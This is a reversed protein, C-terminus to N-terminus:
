KKAGKRAQLWSRYFINNKLFIAFLTENPWPYSVEQDYLKGGEIRAKWKLIPIRGQKYAHNWEASQATGLLILGIEYRGIKDPGTKGEMYLDYTQGSFIMDNVATGDPEYEAFATMKNYRYTALNLGPFITTVFKPAARGKVLGDITITKATGFPRLPRSPDLLQAAFDRLPFQVKEDRNFYGYVTNGPFYVALQPQMSKTAIVDRVETEKRVVPAADGLHVDIRGRYAGGNLGLAYRVKVHGRDVAVAAELCRVDYSEKVASDFTRLRNISVRGSLAAPGLWRRAWRLSRDVRQNVDGPKAGGAPERQPALWDRLDKDDIADCLLHYTGTLRDPWGAVDAILWGHNDGARFEVGNTQIGAIEYEDIGLICGGVRAL